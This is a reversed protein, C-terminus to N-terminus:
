HLLANWVLPYTSMSQARYQPRFGFLVVHGKGRKVDVMAAKGNLREGGLLWGSLLPDGQSPYRAVVTVRSPDTAEFAPGAEFWVGSVPATMGNTLPNSRDFEARFISGPAYFDAPKLGALVNKVPLALAEIAYNSAENFAVLTGGGDVFAALQKAGEEGVGGKLSDPYTGRAGGAIQRANQDPLVIADFKAGLDEGKEVYVGECGLGKAIQDFRVDKSWHVGPETTNGHGFTRKYVGVELGWANDVAVVVVMPIKLRSVVELDSIHYLFSSDSTTLLVPRQRGDAISAGIAYGLGTGLCGFNQNWVM